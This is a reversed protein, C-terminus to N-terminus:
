TGTRQLQQTGIIHLCSIYVQGTSWHAVHVTCSHDPSLNVGVSMGRARPSFVVYVYRNNLFSRPCGFATDAYADIHEVPSAARPRANGAAGVHGFDTDVTSLSM